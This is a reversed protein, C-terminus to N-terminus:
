LVEKGYREPAPGGDRLRARRYLRVCHPLVAIVAGAYGVRLGALIGHVDTPVAMLALGLASFILGVSLRRVSDSRRGVILALGAMGIAWGSLALGRGDKLLHWIHHWGMLAIVVAGAALIGLGALRM